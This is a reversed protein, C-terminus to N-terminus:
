STISRNVTRSEISIVSIDPNPIYINTVQSPRSIKYRYFTCCIFINLGAFILGIIGLFVLVTLYLPTEGNLCGTLCHEIVSYTASLLAIVFAVYFCIITVFNCTNNFWYSENLNTNLVLYGIITIYLLILSSNFIFTISNGEMRLQDQGYIMLLTMEIFTLLFLTLYVIDRTMTAM